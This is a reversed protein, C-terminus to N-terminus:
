GASRARGCENKACSEDSPVVHKGKAAARMNQACRRDSPAAQMQTRPRSAGNDLKHSRQVDPQHGHILRQWLDM